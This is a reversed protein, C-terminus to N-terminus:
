LKEMIILPCTLIKSFPGLDSIMSKLNAIDNLGIARTMPICMIYIVLFLSLGIGLELAYPLTLSSLLIYVIIAAITSSFFIKISSSLDVKVKYKKWLLFLAIFVNPIAVILPAILMGTIGFFTNFYHECPYQYTFQDFKAEYCSQKEQQLSFVTCM